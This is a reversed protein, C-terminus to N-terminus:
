HANISNISYINANANKKKKQFSLHYMTKILM